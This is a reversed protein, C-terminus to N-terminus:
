NIGYNIPNHLEGSVGPPDGLRSFPSRRRQYKASKPVAQRPAAQSGAVLIDQVTESHEKSLSERTDSVVVSTRQVASINPTLLIQKFLDIEKQDSSEAKDCLVCNAFCTLLVFVRFVLNQGPPWMKASPRMQGYNDVVCERLVQRLSIVAM